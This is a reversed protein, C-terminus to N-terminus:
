IFRENFTLSKGVYVDANNLDIIKFRCIYPYTRVEMNLQLLESKLNTMTCHVPLM